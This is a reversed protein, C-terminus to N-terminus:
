SADGDTPVPASDVKIKLNRAQEWTFDPDTRRRTVLGLAIMAKGKRSGEKAFADISQGCLEEIDDIEGVTLHDLDVTLVDPDQEPEQKGKTTV